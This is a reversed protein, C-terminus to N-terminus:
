PTTQAPPRYVSLVDQVAQDSSTPPTGATASAIADNVAKIVKMTEDIDYYGGSNTVMKLANKMQLNWDKLLAPKNKKTDGQYILTLKEKAKEQDDSWGNPNARLADLVAEQQTFRLEPQATSAAKWANLTTEINQTGFIAQFNDENRADRLITEFQSKTGNYERATKNNIVKFLELKAIFARRLDESGNFLDSGNTQIIDRMISASQENGDKVRDLKDRIDANSKQGPRSFTYLKNRLKGPDLTDGLEAVTKAGGFVAQGYPSLPIAGPAAAILEGFSAVTGTIKDVWSKGPGSISEGAWKVAMWMIAITAINWMLKQTSMDSLISDIPVHVVTQGAELAAKSANESAEIKNGTFVMVVGVSLVIGMKVPAFAYEFFYKQLDFSGMEIGLDKFVYNLAIIPSFAMCVWLIVVRFLLVVFIMVFLTAYLLLLALNTIGTLTLGFFSSGTGAAVQTLNNLNLMTNGLVMAISEKGIKDATFAAKESQSDYQDVTLTGDKLKRDLASIDIGDDTPNDPDKYKLSVQIGAWETIEVAGNESAAENMQIEVFNPVVCKVELMKYKENTVSDTVVGTSTDDEAVKVKKKCILGSEGLDNTYLGSAIMIDRPLAFVATTLINSLDIVVKGAFYSFNVLVLAIAVKGLLKKIEFQSPDISVINVFAIVLLVFVFVINVLNRVLKWVELLTEEMGNSFIFDNSLLDGIFGIVIWIVMNVLSGIAVFLAGFSYLLDKFEATAAFTSEFPMFSFLLVLSFIVSIRKYNLLDNIKKIIKKM